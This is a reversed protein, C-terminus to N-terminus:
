RNEWVVVDLGIDFLEQAVSATNSQIKLSIQDSSLSLNFRHRRSVQNTVAATMALTKTTQSIANLYPTLTLNGATQVKCRLLMELIELWEGGASFEMRLYSDIATSVDNTGYNLQYVLGDDVGGAVQVVAVNGSGATVETMCSLEQAPDDFYWVKDTLDFVPFVNPVTASSGSVLGLRLVNDASDFGIWHLEEYGRRICVSETPDFYNSIDDSIFSVTRGDSVAVGYRSIFFALTKLREETATATMVGDVITTCNNNLAGIQSSLVLKGFTAPSYGEILTLCGGEVGLEKQWVMLENYFKRMSNVKNSRGDGVEIIGYDSGNLICPNGSASFYIYEPWLTFSYVARDKWVCNSQGKGMDEIDFHPMTYISIVTSDSLTASVTFYYWYAYYQSGQFQMPFDTVKDFTVWGAHTLGDTGDTITNSDGAVIAVWASGNWYGVDDISVSNSNPTNGPDIYIGVIPDTVAFYVFHGSELEDVTVATAGYLEYDTGDYVYAEIAPQPIGDWLNVVDQWNSDYTIGSVEVEADCAGSTLHVQYWWGNVGYQYKPLIDTPATFSMTGTQAFAKSSASTGDSFGSVDTWAGNWYHIDAVSATGNAAAMTFTFSKAQVPTKIFICDHNGIADLSDLVAVTTTQGDSVEQSYDEGEEPVDPIAATAKVVICKEVYSSDGGYIKHQDVGNSHILKDGINGWSAPVQSASGDFAESGFAGTTVGPPATTADLVDGDSMQAYFHSETVNTKEFQYLSQVRNTGDATTHLARQGGRSKFGPHTGRMDQIMSFAGFPLQAKELRTNCGGRLPAGRIKSIKRLTM